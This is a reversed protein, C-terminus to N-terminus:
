AVRGRKVDYGFVRWGRQHDLFLRGAIRDTRQVEGDLDLVLVFRGTVGVARGNAALVDIQLKRSTATVSEVRAGVAANSMLRRDREALRRADKSFVEFADGFDSRPYDGGVFAAEIWADVAETVRRRLPARDAKPLRGTVKGFTATTAIGPAAGESAAPAGGEDPDAGDDSCAGLATVLVLSVLTALATRVAPGATHFM